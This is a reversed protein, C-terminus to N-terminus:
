KTAYVKDLHNIIHERIDNNWETSEYEYISGTVDIYYSNIDDSFYVVYHFGNIHWEFQIRNSEYYWAIDYDPYNEVLNLEYIFWTAMDYLTIGCKSFQPQYNHSHFYTQLRRVAKADLKM